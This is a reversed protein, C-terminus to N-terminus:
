KFNTAIKPFVVNISKKKEEKGLVTNSLGSGFINHKMENGSRYGRKVQM